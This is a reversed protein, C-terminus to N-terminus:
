DNARQTAYALHFFGTTNGFYDITTHVIPQQSIRLQHHNVKQFDDQLPYLKIQNISDIVQGSYIYHTRHLIHFHPM